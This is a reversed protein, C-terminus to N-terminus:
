LKRYIKEKLAITEFQDNVTSYNLTEKTGLCLYGRHCLSDRFLQFVHDQLDGNFYILVNRCFIVNMEGFVTDTVLNHNAWTIRKKLFGKMKVAGYNTSYYDSLSKVGGASIYNKTYQEMEAVSYIGEKAKKIAANNFDTAYITAKDLYGAEYLMIAMSYVEEGSACGAHWIKCYPYTKLIPFINKVVSRYFDPDRFMETVTISMDLLFKDFLVPDRILAEQMRTFNAFGASNLFNSVRRKLSARAYHRFDYGYVRLIADLMLDIEVEEIEASRMM